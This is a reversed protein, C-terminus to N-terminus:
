WIWIGLGVAVIVELVIVSWATLRSLRLTELFGLDMILHRFGALVHYALALLSLFLVLQMIFSNLIIVAHQYGVGDQKLCTLLWLWFAITLLLVVGSIRHLVSVIAMVPFRYKLPNHNVPKIQTM